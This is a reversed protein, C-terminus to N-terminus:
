GLGDGGLARINLKLAAVEDRLAELVARDATRETECRDVDRRLGEIIERDRTRDSTLDAVSTRELRLVFRITAWVGAVAALIAGYTTEDGPM